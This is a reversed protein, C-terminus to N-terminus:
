VKQAAIYETLLKCKKLAWRYHNLTNAAFYSYLHSTKTWKYYNKTFIEEDSHNYILKMVRQHSFTLKKIAHSFTIQEYQKSIQNNLKDLNRWKYGPAPMEPIDGDMGERYWRELFAHWEYLHTCIDRYSKYPGELPAIYNRDNRKINQLYQLLENFLETTEQIFRDRKDTSM